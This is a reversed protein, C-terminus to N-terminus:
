PQDCIPSGEEKPMLGQVATRPIRSPAVEGITIVCSWRLWEHNARAAWTNITVYTLTLTVGPSPVIYVQSRDGSSLTRGYRNTNSFYEEQATVLNRLDSVMSALLLKTIEATVQMPPGTVSSTQAPLAGAIGLTLLCFPFPSKAQM